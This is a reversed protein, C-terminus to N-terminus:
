AGASEAIAAISMASAEDAMHRLLTAGLFPGTSRRIALGASRPKQQSTPM